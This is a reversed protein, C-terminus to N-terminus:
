PPTQAPVGTTHLGESWHWAAPVHLGAVPVQESGGCSSPAGHSSPLVQVRVSVQAAPAQTPPFGTTHVAASWHWVAPAQLGAVPTQVLGALSSPAGHSSPLAQVRVSVQAAPAQTPPLGTTHVAASWHWVAPTQLGAEPPQLLGALSLPAGHSSPLAQVRVSVQAAPAQTPALGTTHVAASWHWVAPTQLGAEPAQLLGALSLPVGHSSALAHVRVSVQGAPAQTPAFGTAHGAASWHWVAPVQSGADPTQLLGALGLPVLQLSALAHVCLSVQWAPAQTPALGTTHVDAFWHWVAPVQAGADPTKLSGALSLPVLQLSELAHVCLSVQWAPAQTPALGTTHVAALWRWGGPVESGGEAASQWGALGLPVLQLSALAHVCLSVQWAPAKTPALGTTHVDAFWHWVAPVQAGADPTKLSGALSLPVLQLSELAHVCLSVQWAPAQTPALGTTHVAALWRWGGPVESGGEAASQWGALGLPVLQLSALAHVCLSVQWAPAKTPALGTTHVDAFWHWVAPVQAGADPTKLSGALSLPVLQLSELAHVCLSVQWAPAQTPALGTTHVAALWRWGGPVESGGEAASQWGALGLPVLQLSALAHVCLSVQWAPAKTPALGTTHVAALWHWVAPVQSGADPTQLLGALGLPVLQLSALAQVCLSVQWAPAQTPALGTTHVAASWHWVARMQLGADPTQLLGALGSPVPQSSPLAQVRVSAQSAPMQTPM